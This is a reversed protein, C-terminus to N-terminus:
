VLLLETRHVFNTYDRLDVSIASSAFAKELKEIRGDISALDIKLEELRTSEPGVKPLFENYISQVLCGGVRNAKSVNMITLQEAEEVGDKGFYDNSGLKKHIKSTAHSADRAIAEFEFLNNIFTTKLLKKVNEWSNLISEKTNITITCPKITKSLLHHAM